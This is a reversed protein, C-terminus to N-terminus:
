MCFFNQLSSPKHVWAQFIKFVEKKTAQYDDASQKCQLYTVTENRFNKYKDSYSSLEKAVLLFNKFFVQRCISLRSSPKSFNKKTVGQKKGNVSVELPYPVDSWIISSPCPIADDTIKLINEKSYEFTISSQLIKPKVICYEPPLNEISSLRDYIARQIAKENYPCNGFIFSSVYIPRELFHSLLAGQLGCVNWLAIKDSCSMSLTPIGRGPKTRLVGVVHYDKGPRKSDQLDGKVCKAGTRYIDGIVKDMDHNEIDLNDASINKKFKKRKPEIDSDTLLNPDNFSKPFIVADGCPVHSIFFHIQIEPKLCFKGSNENFCLVDSTQKQLLLKMHHYLFRIFSRRVLVEAHSDSLIDGQSSLQSEGLCKTGTSMAAIKVKSDDDSFSLLISALLTWEKQSQPKGKKPLSNFHQYCLNAIQDPLFSIKSDM